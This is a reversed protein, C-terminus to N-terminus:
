DRTRSPIHGVAFAAILQEAVFSPKQARGPSISTGEAVAGVDLMSQQFGGVISFIGGAGSNVGGLPRVRRTLGWWRLCLEMGLGGHVSDVDRGGAM